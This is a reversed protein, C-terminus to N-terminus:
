PARKDGDASVHAILLELADLMVHDVRHFAAQSRQFLRFGEVHLRIHGGVHRAHGAEDGPVVRLHVRKVPFHTKGHATLIEEEAAIIEAIVLAAVGGDRLQAHDVGIPAVVAAVGREGRARVSISTSWPGSEAAM